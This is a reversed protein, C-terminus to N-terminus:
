QPAGASRGEQGHAERAGDLFGTDAAHQSYVYPPHSAAVSAGLPSTAPQVEPARVLRCQRPWGVMPVRSVPHWHLVMHQPQQLPTKMPEWTHHPEKNIEQQSKPVECDRAQHGFEGSRRCMGAIVRYGSALQIIPSDLQFGLLRRCV